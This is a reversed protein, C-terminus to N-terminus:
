IHILSLQADYRESVNVANGGYEIIFDASNESLIMAKCESDTM